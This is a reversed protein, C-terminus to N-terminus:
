RCTWMASGGLLGVDVNEGGRPDSIEFQLVREVRMIKTIKLDSFIRVGRGHETKPQTPGLFLVLSGSLPRIQGGM